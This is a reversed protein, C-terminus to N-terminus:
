THLHIYHAHLRGYFNFIDLTSMKNTIINKYNPFIMYREDLIDIINNHEYYNMHKQINTYITTQEDKNIKNWFGKKSFYYMDYEKKLNQKFHIDIYKEYDSIDKFNFIKSMQYHKYRILHKAM